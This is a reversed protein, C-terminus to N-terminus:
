TLLADTGVSDVPSSVCNEIGECSRQRMNKGPILTSRRVTRAAVVYHCIKKSYQVNQVRKEQRSPQILVIRRHRNVKVQLREAVIVAASM